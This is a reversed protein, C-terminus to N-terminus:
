RGGIFSMMAKQNRKQIREYGACTIYKTTAEGFGNVFTKEEKYIQNTRKREEAELENLATIMEKIRKSGERWQQLITEAKKNLPDEHTPVPISKYLTINKKGQEEIGKKLEEITM